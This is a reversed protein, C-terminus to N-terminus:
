KVGHMLKKIVPNLLFVLVGAVLPVITFILFFTSLDYQKTINEIQGGLVAALKNGIAIALYWMGFMFAIMRAPVLKSVYSLGVPSLCLEGLTHFLYALVLWIMSVKVGEKMGYSGYALLGFGIAMIILGLAYKTAASPNYKSDWWRSFMSAFAIIFFSNLISFWSVTIEVENEKIESVTANVIGNDRNLKKANDKAYQLREADLYGFETGENNKTIIHVKDGVKLAIPEAISTTREVIKDTNNLQTQTTIATYSYQLVGDENKKHMGQEDLVPTEIAQFIVDYATTNFDRNLMWGVVTWMGLFCIVLVVNSGPIKSYTKKWLVYLVYTIIVLPVVTLLTNVINFITAETGSLLRDVNDRAFIVLSSAGQEFSLWFFVTFFAFIIFAVMRDRVVKTYRSIRSIVLFLFLALAFLVAIYQGELKVGKITTELASFMDIGGIKSLPDNFAYGLGIVSSIIILIKDLTTFPNLPEEAGGDTRKEPYEENINQPVEVVHVKSPKAGISGFLSGALWFQLTGLLMFVGALGFGYAWGVKEALYGCLMMGFFAGANVGMYYITYAGDKKEPNEKYMESIISTMTPKFFGTGIVLLALGLYLSFETEFAMSVHGLTMIAAGIIVAWRYGTIKDAIIGGIIPTIYLLMAYTGFLAGANEVTWEWGPNYGVLAMTLFNILLVRMGYFSFREWMETFFLVFLGAPHGLVKDKFLNEIDTSM